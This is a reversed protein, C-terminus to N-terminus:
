VVSKRDESDVIAVKGEASIMTEFRGAAGKLRSLVTLVKKSDQDLLMATSYVALINHANFEGVLEVWVEEKDINLLMGSFHSEIIRANYDALSKLGYTKKYAKTNQLMVM